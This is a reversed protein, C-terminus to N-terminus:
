PNRLHVALWNTGPETSVLRHPTGAPLLVWDGSGLDVREGDVELVASGTLVVVWEDDEQCYDIPADLTGSLIQRVSLNRLELQEEVREGNSPAASGDLLRGRIM